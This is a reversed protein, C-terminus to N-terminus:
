IHCDVLTVEDEPDLLDVLNHWEKDWTDQSKEGSVAGFWGMEGREYWKGDHLVAFTPRTKEWDIDKVLAVDCGGEEPENNFVGPRGLDGSAGPKLALGGTWRGGIVYWDWQSDPNYQTKVVGSGKCDECGVDSKQYLPHEQEYREWLAKREATMAEWREPTRENEPLAWYIERVEHIDFGLEADARALAERSAEKGVCYCAEEYAPVEREEDFPALQDEISKQNTKTVLLAFHSM